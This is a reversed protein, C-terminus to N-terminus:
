TVIHGEEDGGLNRTSMMSRRDLTMSRTSQKAGSELAALKKVLKAHIGHIERQTMGLTVIQVSLCVMYFVLQFTTLYEVQWVVVYTVMTVMSIRTTAWYFRLASFIMRNRNWIHVAVDKGHLTLRYHALGLFLPFEVYGFLLQIFSFLLVTTSLESLLFLLTFAFALTHHVQLEPRMEGVLAAMQLIYLALNPMFCLQYFGAIRQLDPDANKYLAALLHINDPYLGAYVGPEVQFASYVLLGVPIMSAVGVLSELLYLTLKRSKTPQEDPRFVAVLHAIAYQVQVLAILFLILWVVTLGSAPNKSNDYDLRDKWAWYIAFGFCAAIFLRMAVIALHQQKSFEEQVHRFSKEAADRFSKKPNKKQQAKPQADM